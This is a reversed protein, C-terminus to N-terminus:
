TDGRIFIHIVLAKGMTPYGRMPSKAFSDGVATPGRKQVRVPVPLFCLRPPIMHEWNISHSCLARDLPRTATRHM